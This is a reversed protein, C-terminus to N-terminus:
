SRCDSCVQDDDLESTECWWNCGECNMTIDDLTRLLEIDFDVLDAGEGFQTELGDELSKCTGQLYEAVAIIKTKNEDNFEFRSM